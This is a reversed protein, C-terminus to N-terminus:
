KKQGIIIEILLKGSASSDAIPEIATSQYDELLATKLEAVIKEPVSKSPRIRTAAFGASTANKTESIDFGLAKLKDAAKGAEGTVLTGNLVRLTYDSPKPEPVPPPTPKVVVLPKNEKQNVKSMVAPLGRVVMIVLAMGVLAAGVLFLYKQSLKPLKGGFSPMGPFGIRSKKMSAMVTLDYIDTADLTTVEWGLSRVKELAEKPFVGVTYAKKVDTLGHSGIFDSFQNAFVDTKFAALELLEGNECVSAVIEKELPVLLFYKGPQEFKAALSAVGSKVDIVVKGLELFPRQFDEVLKKEFAIYTTRSDNKTKKIVSTMMLEEKFYPLTKIFGDPSDQTPITKVFTKDSSLFLLVEAAAGLAEKQSLAIKVQSDFKASDAIFGDRVVETSFTIQGAFARVKGEYALLKLNDKELFAVLLKKKGM